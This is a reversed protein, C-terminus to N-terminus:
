AGKNTVYSEIDKVRIANLKKAGGYHELAKDIREVGKATVFTQPATFNGVAAPAQIVEFCKENIYKQKPLPRGKKTFVGVARLFAILKNRGLGLSKAVSDLNQANEAALFRDHQEVKPKMTTILDNQKRVTELTASFLLKTQDDAFPLYTDIFLDDNAVYGGTKRIAPLVEHTIWRKFQRAEPKRSGLILTYLGAENVINTEGQRGLNFRAREDEDLRKLADTPNKIELVVCVDKAVFWPQGEKAVTRVEFGEYNFVNKLENM